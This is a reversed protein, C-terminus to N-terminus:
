TRIWNKLTCGQEM